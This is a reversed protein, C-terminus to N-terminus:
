RAGRWVAAVAGKQGISTYTAALRPAHYALYRAAADSAAPDAEWDHRGEAICGLLTLIPQLSSAARFVDLSLKIRM